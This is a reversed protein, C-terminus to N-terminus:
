NEDRIFITKTGHGIRRLDKGVGSITEGCGCLVAAIFCVVLFAAVYRGM